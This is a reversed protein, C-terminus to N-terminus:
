GQVPSSILQKIELPSKGLAIAERVQEVKQKVRQSQVSGLYVRHSKRGLMWRYRYYWYKNGGREVWYKEVWHALKEHQPASKETALTVQAGVSTKSIELETALSVQAGVSACQQPAVDNFNGVENDLFFQEQVFQPELAAVLLLEKSELHEQELEDWYPDATNELPDWTPHATYVASTPSIDLPLEIQLNKLCDDQDSDSIKKM